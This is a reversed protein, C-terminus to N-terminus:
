TTQAKNWNQNVFLINQLIVITMSGTKELMLMVSFLAIMHGMILNDLNGTLTIQRKVQVKTFGDSILIM